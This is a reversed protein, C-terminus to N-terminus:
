EVVTVTVSKKSRLNYPNVASATITHKGPTTAQYFFGEETTLINGGTAHFSFELKGGRPDRATVSVRTRENVRLTTQDLLLSDIIPSVRKINEAADPTRPETRIAEDITLAINEILQRHRSV